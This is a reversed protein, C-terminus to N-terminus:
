LGWIFHLGILIITVVLLTLPTGLKLYDRFTYGGPSMVMRNVPHGLPTMFALSCGLAVAMGLGRPDMGQIRSASFALPVLVLSAVQGGVFQTFVLSLGVLIAALALSSLPGFTHIFLQIVQNALGSSAIAISLPWMGAILFVVRWDIARYADDMSLCDSLILLVAGVMSVEAVPLVGLSAVGLTILTITTALQSKGPKLVPEDEEQLVIFDRDDRLLRLRSPPGQMLLADGYQLPIDAINDQVPKGERWISLVNFGYKERFQIERLSKGNQISRPALVVEALIASPNEADLPLIPNPLLRLGLNELQSADPEGQALVVDGDQFTEDRAPAMQITQDRMVGVVWLGLNQMWLGEKLSHGAIKSGPLIEINCVKRDIGYLSSLEARIRHVRAVEGAPYRSPLFRRGVLLMYLIGVIVIPAGIPLFDLLGFPTYGANRLFGSVVINSTTLLTAMGGLITGYALPLLLRSPMQRTHRSLSMVAPLLIGVAATNNMFLSLGAAALMTVLILSWEKQGGFRQMLRGINQTVGTQRLGESIISVAVITLVASGSFGAFLDAPAVLRALGLTILVLLAVLDSRIRGSLFLFAALLTIILTLLAPLQSM